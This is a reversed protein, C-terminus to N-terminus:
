RARVLEIWAAERAGAYREPHCTLVIVQMRKSADELVEIVRALRASDTAVLVDDLVVMPREESALVEALALRVAFHVQEREGGSLRELAVGEGERAGVWARTPAFTEGLEVEISKEGAIRQLIRGAAREVEGSVKAIAEDRCRVLVERLLKIAQAELTLRAVEAELRSAEEEARALVTFTAGSVLEDLRGEETRAADRLALADAEARACVARADRVAREIEARADLELASKKLAVRAVDLSLAAREFAEECEAESASKRSLEALASRADTAWRESAMSREDAVAVALEAEALAREADRRQRAIRGINGLSDAHARASTAENALADEVGEDGTSGALVADAERRRAVLAERTKAGGLAALRSERARLELAATAALSRRAELEDANTASFRQFLAGLAADSERLRAEAERVSAESLPGEVSISAVGVLELELSGFARLTRREDEGITASEGAHAVTVARKADITVSLSLADLQAKASARAGELARAKAVDAVAPAGEILSARAEDVSRIEEDIADIREACEAIVERAAAVEKAARARAELETATRHAEEARAELAIAEDAALKAEDRRTKALALAVVAAAATREREELQARAARWADLEAKASKAAVEAASARQEAESRALVKADFARLSAEGKALEAAGEAREREAKALEARLAGVREQTLAAREHRERARDVSARALALAEERRVLEPARKGTKLKATQPTYFARFREEVLREIEAGRVGVVQAALTERVRTALEPGLPGLEIMGQPAWLVQALGWHAERALGKPATPRSLLSRVREDAREGRDVVVFDDGEWRALECSPDDLFRKHVRYRVGGHAFEVAVAPAISRGWPRMKEAEVGSVSHHDILARRLAEFLTSKGTGNPASVVNLGSSFGTVTTSKVFCRFGEVVVREVIM